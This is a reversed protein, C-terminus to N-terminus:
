VNVVARSEVRLSLSGIIGMSKVPLVARTVPTPLSRLKAQYMALARWAAPERITSAQWGRMIFMTPVTRLLSRGSSMAARLSGNASPSKRGSASNAQSTCYSVM